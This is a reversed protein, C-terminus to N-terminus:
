RSEPPGSSAEPAPDLDGAVRNRGAEKARYLAKDAALVLDSVTHVGAAPYTAVGISVTVRITGDAAAFEQEEVARRLREATRRAPEYGTQPLIVIFEEGGYRGVADVARLSAAVSRAVERLIVDGTQHGYQDNVRKFRDIDMLLVSLASTYRDTRPFENALMEMAFRHNYLETLGDRISLDRLREILRSNEMVIHAQNTVQALLAETEPPLRALARGALALVAVLHPGTIVPFVRFVDLGEPGPAGGGAEAPTLVRTQVERLAAGPRHRLATEVLRARIAEVAEGAAPHRLVFFTEMEDGDIFAVAGLAFDVVRGILGVVSQVTEDLRVPTRAVKGIESLITAEYLQRDLLDNVRALVDVSTETRRSVPPSDAPGREALTRVVLEILQEPATDKTLYADAGTHLGWFRDGAQDRSTLIVVPISRTQADSKLLRCAQYGNLHPMMVDLVVLDVPRAFAEEVARLGDTVTLVEYGAGRFLAELMRLVVPSDDAVLITQRGEAAPPSAVAGIKAARVQSHLWGIRV